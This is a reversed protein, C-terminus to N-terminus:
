TIDAEIDQGGYRVNCSRLPLCSNLHGAGSMREVM